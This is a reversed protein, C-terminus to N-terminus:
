AAEREGQDDDAAMAERGMEIIAHLYGLWLWNAFERAEEDSM